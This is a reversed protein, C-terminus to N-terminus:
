PHAHTNMTEKLTTVTNVSWQNRKLTVSKQKREVRSLEEASYWGAEGKAQLHRKMKQM